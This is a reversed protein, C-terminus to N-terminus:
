VLAEVPVDFGLYEAVAFSINQEEPFSLARDLSPVLFYDLFCGTREDKLVRGDPLLEFVRRM